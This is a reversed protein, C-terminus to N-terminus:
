KILLTLKGIAVYSWDRKVLIKYTFDMKLGQNYPYAFIKCIFHKHAPHPTLNAPIINLLQAVRSAANSAYSKKDVEKINKM